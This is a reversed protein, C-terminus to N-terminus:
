DLTLIAELNKLSEQPNKPRRLPTKPTALCWIPSPLIPLRSGPMENGVHPDPRSHSTMLCTSLQVSSFKNSEAPRKNNCDRPYKSTRLTPLPRPPLTPPHLPTSSTPEEQLFTASSHQPHGGRKWESEDRSPTTTMTALQRRQSRAFLTLFLSIFFCLFFSLLLSLSLSFSLSAM